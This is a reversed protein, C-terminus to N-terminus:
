CSYSVVYAFNFFFPIDFLIRKLSKPGVCTKNVVPLALHRKRIRINDFVDDHCRSNKKKNM